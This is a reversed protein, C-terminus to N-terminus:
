RDDPSQVVGAVSNAYLGSQRAIKTGIRRPEISFFEDVEPPGIPIANPNITPKAPLMSRATEKASKM